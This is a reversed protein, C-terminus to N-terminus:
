RDQKGGAFRSAYQGWVYEDLDAERRRQADGAPTLRFLPERGPRLDALYGHLVLGRCAEDVEAAAVMRREVRAAIEPAALLDDMTAGAPEADHVVDLLLRRLTHADAM